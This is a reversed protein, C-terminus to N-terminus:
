GGGPIPRGMKHLLLKMDEWVDKKKEPQRHPLLFAPHYTCLVPVGKYAHLKGRLRGLPATTGLLNQAATEGLCCIFRPRVLELQRELYKRCNAAEEPKPPRNGPPRCKVTNCAFVEERRLGCAKIIQNLMRGAPGVFPEGRAGESAAPAKGIFCLEVPIPDSAVVTQTRSVCLEPCRTCASVTKALLQLETRRRELGRDSRDDQDSM